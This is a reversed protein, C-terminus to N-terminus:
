RVVKELQVDVIARMSEPHIGDFIVIDDIRNLIRSPFPWPTELFKITSLALTM